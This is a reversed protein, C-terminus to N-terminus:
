RNRADVRLFDSPGPYVVFSCQNKHLHGIYQIYNFPVLHWVVFQVKKQMGSIVFHQVILSCNIRADVRLFDSLEPTFSCFQVTKQTHGIYQGKKSPFPGDTAVSHFKVQNVILFYFPRTSFSCHVYISIYLTVILNRKRKKCKSLYCEM